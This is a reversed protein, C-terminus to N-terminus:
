FAQGLSVYFQYDDDINERKDIPVAIDLRVPGIATYYRFGLGAGWQLDLEGFEPLEEEYVNGGEIFPVIGFSETIRARFELGLEVVSRGGIPDLESDLPGLRQFGFARVSGGGGAFFLNAAPVKDRDAGVITGIRTRGAVVFDGDDDVSLYHSSHLSSSLFSENFGGFDHFPSVDVQLRSGRTPDLFNDTNDFKVGTRFGALILDEEGTQETNQSILELTPGATVSWSQTLQRELGLFSSARTEDFADTTVDKISGEAVLAQDERLFLPKKFNGTLAREVDSAETSIRLNEGKGFLNRHEWYAHAGPGEETSYTAGFGISRHDRELITVTIPISLVQAGGQVAADSRAPAVTVSDFLGTRALKRQYEEILEVNYVDGQTWPVYARVIDESVDRLGEVQIDGFRAPAGTRVTYHVTMTKTQRDIVTRRNTVAAFPFSYTKYQRTLLGEADIISDATAPAGPVLNLYDLLDADAVAGKPVDSRLIAVEGLRYVTGPDIKFALTVPGGEEAAPRIEAEVVADYYGHSHLADGFREVDQDARRRLGAQTPPPSQLLQYSLSVERIQDGVTSALADVGEVTVAYSLGPPESESEQAQSPGYLGMALVVVIIVSLLFSLSYRL